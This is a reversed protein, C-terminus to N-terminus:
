FKAGFGKKPEKPITRDSNRIIDRSRHENEEGLVTVAFGSYLRDFTPGHYPCPILFREDYRRFRPDDAFFIMPCGERKLRLFIDEFKAVLTEALIEKTPYSRSFVRKEIFLVLRYRDYLNALFNGAAFPLYYGGTKAKSFMSEAHLYVHPAPRLAKGFDKM